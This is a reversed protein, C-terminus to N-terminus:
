FRESEKKYLSKHKSPISRKREQITNEKNKKPREVVSESADVLICEIAPDEYIDKKNPLKFEKSAVLIDEIKRCIKFANSESIGYTQGLSFYTRYERLYELSLLVQDEYSLKLPRGSVKKRQAEVEKVLNVM